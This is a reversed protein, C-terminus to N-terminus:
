LCHNFYTVYPICFCTLGMSDNSAAYAKNRNNNTIKKLITSNLKELLM